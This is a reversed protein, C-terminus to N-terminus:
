NLFFASVKEPFPSLYEPAVLIYLRRDLVLAEYFLHFVEKGYWCSLLFKKYWTLLVWGGKTKSSHFIKEGVASQQTVVSIRQRQQKHM